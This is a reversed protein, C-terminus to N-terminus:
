LKYEGAIGASISIVGDDILYYNGRLLGSIRTNETLKYFLWGSASVFLATVSYISSGDVTASHSALGAGLAPMLTFKETLSFEYGGYIQAQWSFFNYSKEFAENGQIDLVPATGGGLAVGAEAGLTISYPLLYKNRYGLGVQTYATLTSYPFAAGEAFGKSSAFSIYYPYGAVGYFWHQQLPKCQVQIDSIERGDISGNGNIVRCMQAPEDPQSLMKVSYTSENAVKRKFKFRGSESLNLEEADNLVLKVSGGILGNLSGSIEYAKDVCNVVVSTHDRLHIKGSSNLVVCDQREDVTTYDITVKFDTNTTLETTFSFDSNKETLTIKERNNLIIKLKESRNGTVKGSLKFKLNNFYEALRETIFDIAKNPRGNFKIEHEPQAKDGGTVTITVTVTRDPEVKYNGNIQYAAQAEKEASFVPLFLFRNSLKSLAKTNLTKLPEINVPEPKENDTVTEGPNNDTTEIGDEVTTIDSNNETDTNNDEVPKEKEEDPTVNSGENETLEGTDPAVEIQQLETFSVEVLDAFSLANGYTAAQLSNEKIKQTFVGAMDELATILESSLSTHYNEVQIVADNQTLYFRSNIKLTGTNKDATYTGFVVVDADTLGAIFRYKDKDSLNREESKLKAELAKEESVTQFDYNKRLEKDLMGPLSNAVWATDADKITPEFPLILVRSSEVKLQNVPAPESVTDAQSFLNSSLLVSLAVLCLLCRGKM